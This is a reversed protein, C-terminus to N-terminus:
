SHTWFRGCIDVFSHLCRQYPCSKPDDLYNLTCSYFPLIRAEDAILPLETESEADYAPHSATLTFGIGESIEEIEYFGFPGATAVADPDGGIPDLDLFIEAGEIGFGTVSDTVTGVIKAANLATGLSTLFLFTIFTFSLSLGLRSPM